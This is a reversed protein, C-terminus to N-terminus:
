PVLLVMLPSQWTNTHTTPHTPLVCLIQPTPFASQLIGYCHTKINTGFRYFIFSGLVFELVFCPSQIIKIHRHLNMLKLLHVVRTPSPSLPPPETPSIETEEMLKKKHFKFMELFLKIFYISIFILWHHISSQPVASGDTHKVVHGQSDDGQLLVSPSSCPQMSFEQM